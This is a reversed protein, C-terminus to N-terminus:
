AGAYSGPHPLAWFLVGFLVLALVFCICFMGIPATHLTFGHFFHLFWGGQNNTFAWFPYPPVAILLAGLM